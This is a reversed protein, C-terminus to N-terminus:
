SPAKLGIVAPRDTKGPIHLSVLGYGFDRTQEPHYNIYGDNATQYKMGGNSNPLPSETVISVAKALETDDLSYERKMLNAAAHLASPRSGQGEVSSLRFAPKSSYQTAFVGHERGRVDSHHTRGALMSLPVTSSAKHVGSVQQFRQTGTIAQEQKVFNDKCTSPAAETNAQKAWSPKIGFYDLISTVSDLASLAKLVWIWPGAQAIFPHGYLSSTAALIREIEVSGIDTPPSKIWINLSSLTPAVAAGATASVTTILFQRKKLDTM